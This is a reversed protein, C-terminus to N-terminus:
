VHMCGDVDTSHNATMSPIDTTMSYRENYPKFKTPQGTIGLQEYTDRDVSM